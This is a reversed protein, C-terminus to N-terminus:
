KLRRVIIRMDYNQKSSITLISTYKPQKTKMYIKNKLHLYTIKM